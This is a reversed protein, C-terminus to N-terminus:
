HETVSEDLASLLQELSQEMRWCEDAVKQLATQARGTGLKLAGSFTGLEAASQKAGLASERAGRLTDRATSM